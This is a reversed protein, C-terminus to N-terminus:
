RIMVKQVRLPEDMTTRAVFTMNSFPAQRKDYGFPALLRDFRIFHPCCSDHHRNVCSQWGLSDALQQLAIESAYSVHDSPLCLGVKVYADAMM